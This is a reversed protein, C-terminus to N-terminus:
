KDRIARVVSAVAALLGGTAAIIEAVEVPAIPRAVVLFAVLALVALVMVTGLALANKNNCDPIIESRQENDEL